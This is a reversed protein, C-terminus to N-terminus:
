WTAGPYTRQLYQLETLMPGLHESHRGDRGGKQMWRNRPVVLTAEALVANVTDHWVDRLRQPDPVIGEAILRQESADAEFLEGTFAWLSEIAAQTRRHSEATGDGLRVVWESAHRLHYASEKEAKAAIAALTADASGILLRWYPDIFASYFLQRVMTAAFDGNPQEVLLLNGYARENRLYAYDDETRGAAEVEAAYAYLARAQGILDLGTNALAMEEEMIPAHGCWESLRHGLVLADDARRLLYRVLPTEAVAISTTAM